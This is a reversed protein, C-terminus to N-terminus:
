RWVRGWEAVLGERDYERAIEDLRGKVELRAGGDRTVPRISSAYRAKSPRGSLWAFPISFRIGKDFSGEGFDEASVNTLTAWAGLRWGNNFERDLALTAGWDGALYRGADVQARYGGGLDYYASLHGSVVDYDQLGFGQEFERQRVYNVEAGLALRSAAPKWLAEASVGAFMRELYGATVRGYLDTGLSTYWAATLHDLYVGDDEAANYRAYDSRVRPLVSNSRRASTELNGEIKHRLAGSFLVGPVPEYRARLQAGIDLRFPNDPDFLETRTYPGIAWFFHPYLGEALTPKPAQGGAGGLTAAALLAEAGDGAHELRELDSRKLTVASLPLANVVPIITFTEVSAPLAAALVRATRGIAQAPADYRRNRIRIEATTATLSLAELTMGEADLAQAIGGKLTTVAQPADAWGTAWLEPQASQAPRPQIPLGGPEYSGKNPPRKPNLSIRANIGLQTGHLFYAGIRARDSLVYDVGLNWPSKRDVVDRRRAELDYADSSYELKIGIRDTPQWELGFFPAAPGRFWEKFNPQGGRGVVRRPREGFPSGIAGYSALRGWGLGATAKLQPTLAKTAVLYEGSYIGTGVFDQLGLKVAPLYRGENLIRYSVDFSRDFYTSYGEYNLDRIGVYRFSGSLRPAIQFSLTTRTIGAFHSVTTSIQGDPQDEASPMDILGTVGYFNLSPRAAGWPTLEGARAAGMGFAFVLALLVAAGAARAQGM